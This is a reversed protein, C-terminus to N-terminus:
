EKVLKGSVIVNGSESITYLYMNASLGPLYIEQRSKIMSSFIIKGNLDYLSLHYAQQANKGDNMDFTIRDNFPNPFCSVKIKQNNNQHVYLLVRYLDERITHFVENTTVAKNFDFFVNAKNTFVTNDPL